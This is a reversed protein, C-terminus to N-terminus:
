SAAESDLGGAEAPRQMQCETLARVGLIRQRDLALQEEGFCEGRRELEEIRQHIATEANEIRRPLENGSREVVGERCRERGAFNATM